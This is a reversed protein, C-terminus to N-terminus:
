ASRLDPRPRDATGAEGGEPPVAHFQKLVIDTHHSATGARAAYAACRSRDEGLVARADGNEVNIAYARFGDGSREGTSAV